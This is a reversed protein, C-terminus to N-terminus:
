EGVKVGIDKVGSKSVPDTRIQLQLVNETEQPLFVIRGTAPTIDVGAVASEDTGEVQFFYSFIKENIPCSYRKRSRQRLNKESIKRLIYIM